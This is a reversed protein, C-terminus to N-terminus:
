KNYYTGETPNTYWETKTIPNQGWSNFDAYVGKICQREQPYKFDNPIMIGHPDEGVKSLLITKGTTKNYIYPRTNDDLFSFNPSVEKTATIYALKELSEDTNIFDERTKGFLKHIEKDDKINGANINKIYLEDKAGCAVVYYTVINGSRTAKIVVDNMDYDGLDRDEFCYTYTNQEIGPVVMMDEVGGEIELIIDNFDTDTGSEFCLLQKGNVKLWAVRPGDEGLHSSSFNPWKNINNNLRGDGYLEGQKKNGEKNNKARVMFGIKYGKPFQYTGVSNADPTGEGWYILAYTAHKSIEDDGKICENFPLAKYKPLSNLYAVPDNGLNEEKFYYYYLDSNVVEEYGGDNKYVPSVLIPEDGTSIPYGTENYLGTNLVLPLHDYKRGNKFFSFVFDRFVKKYDNDYDEVSIKQNTYDSLGYLIQGPIWGRISAYSEIEEGIRLGEEQPLTVGRTIGRTKAPRSYSVSNGEVEQLIFDDKTIFAVYLGLNNKPADYYLTVSSKSKADAENLVTMSTEKENFENLVDAETYALLQVKEVDSSNVNITVSGSVTSNWDHNKDFTVGFVKEVNANIEEQLTPNPTPDPTPTPEPEIADFGKTCSAFVFIGIVAFKVLSKKM